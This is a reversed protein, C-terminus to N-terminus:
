RKVPTIKLDLIEAGRRIKIIAETDAELANIAKTYEYINQVSITGLQLVVDGKELGAKEAPSSPSVGAIELGETSSGSYDPITGLYLRISSTQPSTHESSQIFEIEEEIRSLERIIGTFLDAIRIIGEFNLTDPTDGPTHYEKHLGTFANLVPIRNLYFPTTDSPILPNEDYRLSASPIGTDSIVSSIIQKWVPSSGTGQIYVADRYRGIMDLNLYALFPRGYQEKLSTFHTDKTFKTSGILGLEEGSWFAFYIDRRPVFRGEAIENKLARAIYLLGSVGSANDDAGYHTKFKDSEDKALSHRAEFASQPTGLHDYHAGILIPSLNKESPSAPIKAIVSTGEGFIEEGGHHPAIKYSFSHIFDNGSYPALSIRRIEDLIFKRAKEEGHSGTFRGEMEDSALTYVINKTFDEPTSSLGSTLTSSRSCSLLLLFLLCTIHYYFLSKIRAIDRAM